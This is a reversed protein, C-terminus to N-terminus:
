LISEILPIAGLLAADSGFVSARLPVTRGPTWAHADIYKQLSPLIDAARKMVSDGFVVVEPQLLRYLADAIQPLLCQLTGKGDAALIERAIISEDRVLACTVHSGGLDIALATVGPV